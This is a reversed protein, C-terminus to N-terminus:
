REALTDEPDDIIARRMTAVCRDPPQGLRVGIRNQHIGGHMGTPEVLHFDVERDHLPLDKRGVVKGTELLDFPTQREVFHERVLLWPRKCPLEGTGLQRLKELAELGLTHHHVLPLCGLCDRLRVLAFRQSGLGVFM